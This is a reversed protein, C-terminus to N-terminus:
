AGTTGATVFTTQSAWRASRYSASGRPGGFPQQRWDASSSSAADLPLVFLAGDEGASVVQM